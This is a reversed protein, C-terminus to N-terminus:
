HKDEIKETEKKDKFINNKLLLEQRFYIGNLFLSYTVTKHTHIYHGYIRHVYQVGGRFHGQDLENYYYKM